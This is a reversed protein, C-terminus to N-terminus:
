GTGYTIKSLDLNPNNQLQTFLDQNLFEQFQKFQDAPIAQKRINEYFKEVKIALKLDNFQTPYDFPDAIKQSIIPHTKALSEKWLKVIPSIKSPCYTKAFFAAEPLRNSKLLVELCKDLNACLFYASFAINMKTQQFAKDGLQLLQTKLGISSYILLLGGFDDAEELAQAALKIKGQQLALDGVQRLKLTDQSKQAIQFADDVIALQLALEFKHDTDQVLKYAWEKLNLTDLFKSLKDYYQLPITQLIEEAKPYQKKLIQTQFEVVNSNVEYSIINYNKDILYLKNQQQIYGIIFYKKDQDVIFIKGNVSYAIKGNVTTYYFVDQIFYGSNISETIDCLPQFADEFGDPEEEQQLFIPLQEPDYQLFYVEDNTALAVITNTENWIVKNPSVDIRRIVKATEWDYFVIFDTFKACLVPGAFLQDVLYETKMEYSLTNNKFLKISFIEKVAYDGSSSWILDTGSGFGSNKFNQSRYITYESDSFIAFLHGNPSHRVGCPYIDSIGLEKPNTQVIQGDNSTNNIAKLNITFFEFNKGYVVKGQQMSVIPEDQGFKVVVTGEDFGFAITNDKGIDSSWVREMDYSLSTELKYTNSHWFRIVGDEATSIILPLDPHFKASSINQQHAELTHICQKTQYDWIKISRDDGGSILYPKDGHHFDVCNVGGEHGTLTFNPKSNQITWVKVTNDMSASAFTNPDRPNYAVMMVYNVHDEFIRILTFNNDIDWLKITMDDSSTILYPQSPHVIVCRIYDTHADFAKIKENTNYNFVRLQLDDSVAVIWQKKTIFKACRVPQQKQNVEIQKVITQNSYDHITIIGSYLGSLVWAYEPHLEVSKVRESRAVHKKKIEFNLSM